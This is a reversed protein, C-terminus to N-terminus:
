EYNKVGHKELAKKIDSVKKVELVENMTFKIDFNSELESVLMLGNFSDWNDVNEPSTDNNIEEEKVELVQSLIENLKKM